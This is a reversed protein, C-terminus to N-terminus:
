TYELKLEMGLMMMGSYYYTAMIDQGPWKKRVQRSKCDISIVHPKGSAYAYVECSQRDPFGTKSKLSSTSTASSHSIQSSRFRSTLLMRRRLRHDHCVGGKGVRVLCRHLRGKPGGRTEDGEYAMAKRGRDDAGPIWEPNIVMRGFAGASLAHVQERQVASNRRTRLIDALTLLIYYQPPM